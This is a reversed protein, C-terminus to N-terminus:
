ITVTLHGDDGYVAQIGTRQQEATDAWRRTTKSLYNFYVTPLTLHTYSVPRLGGASPGVRGLLLAGADLRDVAVVAM